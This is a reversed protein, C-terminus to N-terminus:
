TRVEKLADRVLGLKNDSRYLRETEAYRLVEGTESDRELAVILGVEVLAEFLRNLDFHRLHQGYAFYLNARGHTKM